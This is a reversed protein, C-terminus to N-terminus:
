ESIMQIIDCPGQYKKGLKVIDDLKTQTTQYIVNNHSRLTVSLDRKQFVSKIQCDAMLQEAQNWDITQTELRTTTLQSSSQTIAKNQQILKFIAFFLAFLIISFISIYIYQRTSSM